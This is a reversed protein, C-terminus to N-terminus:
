SYRNRIANMKIEQSEIYDNKISDIRAVNHIFEVIEASLILNEGKPRIKFDKNINTSIENAYIENNEVDVYISLDTKTYEFQVQQESEILKAFPYFTNNIKLGVEDYATQTNNENVKIFRADDIQTTGILEFNGPAAARTKNQENEIWIYEEYYNKDGTDTIPVLYIAKPNIDETPLVDVVKLILGLEKKSLLYEDLNKDGIMLSTDDKVSVTDTFETPSNVTLDGGTITVNGTIETDGNIETNSDIKVPANFQAEENFTTTNKFTISNGFETFANYIPVESGGMDVYIDGLSPLHMEDTFTAKNEFTVDDTFFVTNKFTTPINFTADIDDRIDDGFKISVNFKLKDDTLEIIQSLNYIEELTITRDKDTEECAKEVFKIRSFGSGTAYENQQGIVFEISKTNEAGIKIDEAEIEYISTYSGTQNLLDANDATFTAYGPTFNSLPFDYTTSM